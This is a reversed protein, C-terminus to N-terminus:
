DGVTLIMSSEIMLSNKSYSGSTKFYQWDDNLVLGFSMSYNGALIFTCGFEIGCIGNPSFDGNALQVRSLDWFGSLGYFWEEYTGWNVGGWPNNPYVSVNYFEIFFFASSQRNELFNWSDSYGTNTENNMIRFTLSTKQDPYLPHINLFEVKWTRPQTTVYAIIDFKGSNEQKPVWVIGV